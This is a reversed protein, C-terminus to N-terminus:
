SVNATNTDEKRRSNETTHMSFIVKQTTQSYESGAKHVITLTFKNLAGGFNFKPPM